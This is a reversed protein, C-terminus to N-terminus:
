ATFNGFIINVVNSFHYFAWETNNVRDPGILNINQSDDM